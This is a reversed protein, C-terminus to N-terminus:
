ISMFNSSRQQLFGHRQIDSQINHDEQNISTVLDVM